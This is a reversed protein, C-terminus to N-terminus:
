TAANKTLVFQAGSGIAITVQDDSGVPTFDFLVSSSVALGTRYVKRLKEYDGDSLVFAQGDYRLTYTTTPM